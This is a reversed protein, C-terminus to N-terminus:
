FLSSNGSLDTINKLFTSMQTSINYATMKLESNIYSAYKTYNTDGLTAPSVATVDLINSSLLSLNFTTVIDLPTTTTSGSNSLNLTYIFTGSYSSINGYEFKLSLKCNTTTVYTYGDNNEVLVNFSGVKENYLMFNNESSSYGILYSDGFIAFKYGEEINDYNSNSHNLIYNRTLAKDSLKREYSFHAYLDLDSTIRTQTINFQTYRGNSYTEWYDFTYVLDYDDNYKESEKTPTLRNSPYSAYTGAETDVQALITQSGEYAFFRVLYTRTTQTFIPYCNIDSLINDLSSQTTSDIEWNGSFKYSYLSDSEKTPAISGKFSSSDGAKVSDSYLLTTRDSDYYNVTYYRDSELFNPYLSINSTVDSAGITNGDKDVWGSFNFTKYTTSDKTPKDISDPLIAAEHEYVTSEYLLINNVDDVDNKDYEKGYFKVKYSAVLPEVFPSSTTGCSSIAFLSSILCLNTILLKSKKM